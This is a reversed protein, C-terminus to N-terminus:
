RKRRNNRRRRDRWSDLLEEFFGAVAEGIIEYIM